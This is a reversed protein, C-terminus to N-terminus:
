QITEESCPIIQYELIRSTVVSNEFELHLGRAALIDEKIARGGWTCGNIAVKVPSLGQRDFWGGSVAYLGEQVAHISYTSNRTTVVLRDGFKLDNKYIAEIRGAHEVIAELTRCRATTRQADQM